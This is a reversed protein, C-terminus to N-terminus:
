TRTGLACRGNITININFTGGSVTQAQIQKQSADINYVSSPKTSSTLEQYFLDNKYALQQSISKSFQWPDTSLNDKFSIIYFADLFGKKVKKFRSNVAHGNDEDVRSIDILGAPM